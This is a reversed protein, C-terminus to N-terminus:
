APVPIEEPTRHACWDWMTVQDKSPNQPRTWPLKHEWRRRRDLWFDGSSKVTSPDSALWMITDAGQQVSRLLPRMVRHFKPLSDELGPTDTWGPHMAHFVVEGPDIRRAWEHNLVLQARKARAYAAVGDYKVETSQLQEFDFRQAYMGGSSVTIVRGPAAARLAPLLACTLIFPGLVHTSLTLEIGDPTSRFSRSLAGANHILVDLPRGSNLFQSAADNVASPDSMDALLVTVPEANPSRHGELLVRTEEARDANRAVICVSAGLDAATIASQLGLGSTAGTVLISKGSMSPLPSWNQSRRRLEYGFRSFSGVVTAELAEDLAVVGLNM